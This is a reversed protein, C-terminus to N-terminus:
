KFVIWNRNPSKKVIIRISHIGFFVTQQKALPNGNFFKIVKAFFNKIVDESINAM